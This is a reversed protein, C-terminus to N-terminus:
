TVTDSEWNELTEPFYLSRPCTLCVTIPYLNFLRLFSLRKISQIGFSTYLVAPSIRRQGEFDNFKAELLQSFSSSYKVRNFKGLWLAIGTKILGLFTRNHLYKMLEKNRMQLNIGLLSESANVLFCNNEGLLESARM